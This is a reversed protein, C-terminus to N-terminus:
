HTHNPLTLGLVAVAQTVYNSTIEDRCNTAADKPRNQDHLTARAFRFTAHGPDIPSQTGCILAARATGGAPTPVLFHRAVPRRLLHPLPFAGDCCRRHLRRENRSPAHGGPPSHRVVTTLERRTLCGASHILGWTDTRVRRSPREMRIRRRAIVDMCDRYRNSVSCSIPQFGHQDLLCCRSRDNM